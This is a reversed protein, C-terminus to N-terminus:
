DGLNHLWQQVDAAERSSEPRLQHDVILAVVQILVHTSCTSRIPAVVETNRHKAWKSLLMALAMSDPGGSVAVAAAM